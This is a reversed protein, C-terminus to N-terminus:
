KKIFKYMKCDVGDVDLFYVGSALDSVIVTQDDDTIKITKIKKGTIDTIRCTYGNLDSKSRIQIVENALTPYIDLLDPKTNLIDNIGTSALQISITGGPSQFYMTGAPSSVIQQFTGAPSTVNWMGPKLDTILVKYMGTTGLKFSVPKDNTDLTLMQAVIRDKVRVVVYRSDSSYVKEMDATGTTNSIDMAQIVNLFNDSKKQTVPSLEVRWQGADEQTVTGYNTTGVLYEKGAGGVLSISQNGTEPLMVNDILKGNRGNATSTATIISGSVTPQNQTHLLWTKKFTANTSCVKDFVILTGPIATENHNLFVFSRRVTDVKAAYTGVISPVNYEKTLDGKLYSYEPAAGTAIDYAMIQASKGSNYMQSYNYWAKSNFFFQGGDRAVAKASSAVWPLSENPDYILMCNHAITRTYYNNYNTAGWENNADSGQYIGADLALHGKYYISFHGGDLHTHNMTNYEKMDMLAVMANSSYGSADIDWKTRAIMMGSPSPFFKTQCLNNEPNLYTISPDFYIFLRAVQSSLQTLSNKAVYQLYPDKSLNSSLYLIQPWSMLLGNHGDGEPMRDQDTKQPIMGYIDRLAFTNIAPVYPSIGLKNLMFHQLLENGGRVHIYQAGQHHTGSAYLPNRTPAFGNVQENYAFNFFTPDEDHTAIGVAVYVSPNLEGYHGSMYQTNSTNPLGYETRKCVLKMAAQLNNKDTATMLPYCWDYVLAAGIIMENTYSLKNYDSPVATAITGYSNLYSIALQIAQTGSATKTNDTLYELALAEMKQRISESPSDTTVVGTTSYSKQSTYYSTVSSFLSNSLRTAISSVENKRVLLRPHTPLPGSTSFTASVQTTSSKKLAITLTFTRVDVPEKIYSVPVAIQFSVTYTSSPNVSVTAPVNALQFPFGSPATVSFDAQDAVTNSSGIVVTYSWLYSGDTQYAGTRSISNITWTSALTSANVKNSSQVSAQNEYCYFSNYATAPFVFTASLLCNIALVLKKFM